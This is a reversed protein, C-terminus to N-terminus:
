VFVKDIFDEGFFYPIQAIADMKKSLIIGPSFGKKIKGHSNELGMAYAANVSLANYAQEPTLKMKICALSWVSSLHYCPSSGPNFDSAM